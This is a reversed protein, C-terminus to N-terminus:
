FPPILVHVDRGHSLYEHAEVAGTLAALTHDVNNDLDSVLVGCEDHYMKMTGDPVLTYGHFLHQADHM